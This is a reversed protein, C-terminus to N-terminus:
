IATTFRVERLEDLSEPAVVNADDVRWVVNGAWNQSPTLKGQASLPAPGDALGMVTPFVELGTIDGEGTIIETLLDPLLHGHQLM